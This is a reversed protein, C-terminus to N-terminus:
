MARTLAQNAAHLLAGIQDFNPGLALGYLGQIVQVRGKMM